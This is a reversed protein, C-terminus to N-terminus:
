NAPSEPLHAMAYRYFAEAAPSREGAAPAAVGIEVYYAPETPLVAIHDLSLGYSLVANNLSVGLGAAVMAYTSRVNASSYRAQPELHNQAFARANDTDQGAYTSIYPDALFDRLPYVGDHVRPHNEPVWALLPDQLLPRFDFGGERRSVIAFDAEHNEISACLEASSGHLFEVEIGPHAACFGAITEALWDYYVAYVSGVRVTGIEVGRLAAAQEAYHRGLRALERVTPLLAKCEETPEVGGRSRVLLPFGTEAELAAMMRSVGSPTYGLEEAAASLSGTELVRLLAACKEIDM